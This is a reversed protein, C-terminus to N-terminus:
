LISKQATETKTDPHLDETETQSASFESETDKPKGRM